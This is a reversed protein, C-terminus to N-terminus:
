RIRVVRTVKGTPMGEDLPIHASVYVRYVRNRAALRVTARATCKATTSNPRTCAIKSVTTARPAFHKKVAGTVTGVPAGDALAAPAHFVVACALGAV